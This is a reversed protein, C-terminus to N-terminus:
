EAYKEPLSDYCGRFAESAIDDCKEESIGLYICRFKSVREAERCMHKKYKEPVKSKLIWGCLTLTILFILISVLPRKKKM